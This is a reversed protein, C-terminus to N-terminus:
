QPGSRHSSKEDKAASAYEIFLHASEPPLYSFVKVDFNKYSPPMAAQVGIAKKRYFVRTSPAFEFKAEGTAMRILASAPRSFTLGRKKESSFPAYSVFVKGQACTLSFDRKLQRIDIDAQGCSARFNALGQAQVFLQGGEVDLDNQANQVKLRVLGGQVRLRMSSPIEIKGKVEKTDEQGKLADIILARGSRSLFVRCNVDIKPDSSSAIVLDVKDGQVIVTEVRETSPLQASDTGKSEGLTEKPSLSPDTKQRSSSVTSAKSYSGKAPLPSPTQQKQPLSGTDVSGTSYSEPLALLGWLGM